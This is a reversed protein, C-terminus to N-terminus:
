REKARGVFPVFRVAMLERREFADPDKGPRKRTILMLSQVEHEPGVPIVLRGGVALQDVLPAPVHEPAATVVVVDFPAADPWGGFGDGTRLLVRDKGYGTARLNKEAFAALPALYEISFVKACLEALVAAQYGSGTGIELCRDSPKPAVAATMAAVVAPQSITQDHGIPLPRNEYAAEAVDAPVFRHRPVRRLAELVRADTIESQRAVERFLAEREARRADSSAAAPPRSSPSSPSSQVPKAQRESPTVCGWLAFGLATLAWRVPHIWTMEMDDESAIFVYYFCGSSSSM